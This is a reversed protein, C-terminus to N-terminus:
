LLQNRIWDSYSEFSKLFPLCIIQPVDYPHHSIIFAEIQAYYRFDTKLILRWEKEQEIKGQWRYISTIPGEIQACAALRKKVLESGLNRAIQEDPTTIEISVLQSM